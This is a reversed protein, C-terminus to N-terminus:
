SFYYYFLFIFIVVLYFNFIGALKWEKEGKFAKLIEDYPDDSCEIPVSKDATAEGGYHLVEPFIQTLMM